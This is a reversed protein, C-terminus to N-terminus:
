RAPAPVPPHTGRLDIRAPAGIDAELVDYVWPGGQKRAVVYVKGEGRPGEIPITLEASGDEDSVEIHGQLMLGGRLPTGLAQVVAPHASAAALGHQYPEAQKMMGFVFAVLALVGGLVVLLLTLCGVPVLWKWHRGFWNPASAEM